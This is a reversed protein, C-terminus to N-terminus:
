RLIFDPLGAKRLLFPAESRQLLHRSNYSNGTRHLRCKRFPSHAPPYRLYDPCPKSCKRHPQEAYPQRPSGNRYRDYCRYLSAKATGCVKKGKRRYDMKIIRYPRRNKRGNDYRIEYNCFPSGNFHLSLISRKLPHMRIRFYTRNCFHRTGTPNPHRKGNVLPNPDGCGIIVRSIGAEIIASVCPAAKRCHSCPELTVYMEAHEPSESCSALANREAHLGGYKEHWGCGIIKGNKVIVAGAMPNPATQGCGKEALQLAMKMYKSDNM